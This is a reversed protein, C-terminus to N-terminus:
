DGKFLPNNSVSAGLPAGSGGSTDELERPSVERMPPSPAPQASKKTKSKM